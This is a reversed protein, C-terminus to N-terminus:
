KIEKLQILLHGLPVQDNTKIFLIEVEADIDSKM